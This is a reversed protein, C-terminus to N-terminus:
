YANFTIQSKIALLGAASIWTIFAGFKAALSPYRADFFRPLNNLIFWVAHDFWIM